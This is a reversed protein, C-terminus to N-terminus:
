ATGAHGHTGRLGLRYSSPRDSQTRPVTRGLQAEQRSAPALGNGESASRSAFGGSPRLLRGTPDRVPHEPVGAKNRHRSTSHRDPGFASATSRRRRSRRGASPLVTLTRRSRPSSRGAQELRGGPMTWAQPRSFSKITTSAPRSASTSAETRGRVPVARPAGPPTPLPIPGPNAARLPRDLLQSMGRRLLVRHQTASPEESAGPAHTPGGRLYLGRCSPM